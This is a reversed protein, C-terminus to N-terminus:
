IGKDPTSPTALLQVLLWFGCAGIAGIAWGALVDSPYHVGLFVRSVGIALPLTSCILWILGLHRRNAPAKAFLVGIVLYTLTSLMAHGSPFSLTHVEILHPVISPRERAFGFKLAQEGLMCAAATFTVVVALQRQRDILLYGIAILAIMTLILPSGLSTIDRMALRLGYPGITEGLNDPQRLMLLLARDFDTVRGELVPGALAIVGLLFGSMVGIVAVTQVTKLTM